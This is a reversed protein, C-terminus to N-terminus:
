ANAIGGIAKLLEYVMKAAEARTATGEPDFRNDGVGNVVGASCLTMVAEKAYAAIQGDDAFPAATIVAKGGSLTYIRSLIVAMDQRSIQRGTGFETESVGTVLGARYASAVYPAYWADPVVDEFESVAGSDFLNFACVMIKVFEERTVMDDPYFRGDEKGQLVGKGALYEISQAAWAVTELDHFGAQEPPATQPPVAEDMNGQYTPGGSVGGGGYGGSSSGGMGGSGQKSYYTDYLQASISKFKEQVDLYGNLETAKLKVFVEGQHGQLQNFKSRDLTIAGKGEYYDLMERGMGWDYQKIACVLVARDFERKVAEFDLTSQSGSQMVKAAAQQNPLGQYYHITDLELVEKNQEVTEVWLAADAASLIQAAAISKQFCDQLMKELEAINTQEENVTLDLAELQRNVELIWDTGSSPLALYGTLDLGLNGGQSKLIETLEAAQANGILILADRKDNRNTFHLTVERSVLGSGGLRFLYNGTPTDAAVDFPEFIFSGDAATRTQGVYVPPTHKEEDFMQLTIRTEIQPTVTGTLSVTLDAFRIQPKIVSAGGDAASVPLVVLACIVFLLLVGSYIKRM